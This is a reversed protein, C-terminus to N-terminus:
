DVMDNFIRENENLDYPPKLLERIKAEVKRLAFEEGRLFQRTEDTCISNGIDWLVKDRYDVIFEILKRIKEM